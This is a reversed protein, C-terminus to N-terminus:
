LIVQPKLIRKIIYKKINKREENNMYKKCLEYIKFPITTNYLIYHSNMDSLKLYNIHKRYKIIFDSNINRDYSIIDWNLKRKYNDVFLYHLKHKQSIIDWDIEQKFLEFFDNHIVETTSLKNINIKLKKMLIEKDYEYSLFLILNIKEESGILDYVISYCDIDM